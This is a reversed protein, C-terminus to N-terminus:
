LRTLGNTIVTVTTIINYSVPHMCTLKRGSQQDIFEKIGQAHFDDYRKIM